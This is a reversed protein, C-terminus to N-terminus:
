NHDLGYRTQTAKIKNFSLVEKVVKRLKILM